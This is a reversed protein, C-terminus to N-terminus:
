KKGAVIEKPSDMQIRQVTPMMNISQLYYVVLLTLVYGKLHEFGQAKLWKRVFHFLSVAEPQIVFM